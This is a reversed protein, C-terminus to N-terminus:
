VDVVARILFDVGKRTVNLDYKSVGKVELKSFDVAKYRGHLVASLFLSGGERTIKIGEANYFFIGRADSESLCRQLAKWALDEPSHAKVRVKVVRARSNSKELARIDAMTNFLAMMANGFAVEINHGFAVFEVDATHPLYRYGARSAM